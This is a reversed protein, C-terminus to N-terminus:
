QYQVMSGFLVHQPLEPGTEWKDGIKGNSDIKLLEVTAAYNTGTSGGAVVIVKEIDGTEANVSSM